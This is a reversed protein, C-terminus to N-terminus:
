RLDDYITIHVVRTMSRRRIYVVDKDEVGISGGEAVYPWRELHGRRNALATNGPFAGFRYWM